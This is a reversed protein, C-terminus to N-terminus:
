RPFAFRIRWDLGGCGLSGDPRFTQEYRSRETAKKAAQEFVFPPYAVVPRVNTTKGDATLDFELQVWGEFGWRMAEVPFDNDSVGLAKRRPPADLLSCQTATLAFGLFLGRKLGPKGILGRM